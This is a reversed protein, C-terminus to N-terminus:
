IMMEDHADNVDGMDSKCDSGDDVDNNRLNPEPRNQRKDQTRCVHVRWSIKAHIKGATCSIMKATKKKTPLGIHHCIKYGKPLGLHPRFLLGSNITLTWLCSLVNVRKPSMIYRLIMLSFFTWYKRILLVFENLKSQHLTRCHLTRCRCLGFRISLHHLECM